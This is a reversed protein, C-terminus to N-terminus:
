DGLRGDFEHFGRRTADAPHFEWHTRFAARGLLDLRGAQLRAPLGDAGPRVPGIALGTAGLLAVLAVSLVARNKRGTM